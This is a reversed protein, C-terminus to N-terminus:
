ATNINNIIFLIFFIQTLNAILLFTPTCNVLWGKINVHSVFDAIGNYLRQPNKQRGKCCRLASCVNSDNKQLL